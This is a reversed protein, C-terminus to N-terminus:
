VDEKQIPFLSNDSNLDLCGVIGSIRLVNGFVFRGNLLNM